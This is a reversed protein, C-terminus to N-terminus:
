PECRQRRSHCLVCWRQSYECYGCHIALVAAGECRQQRGQGPTCQSCESYGSHASLTGGIPVRLEGNHFGVVHSRLAAQGHRQAARQLPQQLPRVSSHIARDGRGPRTTRSPTRRQWHTCPRIALHWGSCRCAARCRTARRRPGTSTPPASARMCAHLRTRTHIYASRQKACTVAASPLSPTTQMRLGRDATREKGISGALARGRAVGRLVAARCRVDPLVNATPCVYPM